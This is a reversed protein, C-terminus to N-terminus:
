GEASFVVQEYVDVVKAKIQYQFSNGVSVDSLTGAKSNTASSYILEFQSEENLKYIEAQIRIPYSAIKPGYFANNDAFLNEELIPMQGLWKIAGGDRSAINMLFTNNVFAVSTNSIDLFDIIFLYYIHMMFLLLFPYFRNMYIFNFIIVFDIDDSQYYHM